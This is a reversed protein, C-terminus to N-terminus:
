SMFRIGTLKYVIKTDTPTEYLYLGERGWLRLGTEPNEKLQALVKRIYHRERPSLSILNSYALTSLLIKSM